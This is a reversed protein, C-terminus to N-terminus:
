GSLKKNKTNVWSRYSAQDLPTSDRTATTYIRSSQSDGLSLRGDLKTMVYIPTFLVVMVLVLAVFYVGAIVILSISLTRCIMKYLGCLVQSEGCRVIISGTSSKIAIKAM